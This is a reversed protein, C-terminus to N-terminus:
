MDRQLVVRGNPLVGVFTCGDAILKEAGASDAVVRGRRTNGAYATGRARARASGPTAGEIM